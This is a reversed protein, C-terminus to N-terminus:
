GHLGSSPRVDLGVYRNPVTVPSLRPKRCQSSTLRISPQRTRAFRVTSHCAPFW